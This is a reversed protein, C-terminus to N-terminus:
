SKKCNLPYSEQDFTFTESQVVLGVLRPETGQNVYEVFAVVGSRKWTWIKLVCHDMASDDEIVLCNVKKQELLGALKATDLGAIGM